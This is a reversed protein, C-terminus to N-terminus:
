DFIASQEISVTKINNNNTSTSNTSHSQHADNARSVPSIPQTLVSDESSKDKRLNDASFIATPRTISYDTMQENSSFGYGEIIRDKSVIRIFATDSYIRKTRQDWFLQKTLFSDRAVNVMVVNGDLRWLRDNSFYTASDCNVKASQQFQKDFQELFLGEPFTWRPVKAEDYVYWVDATIRYRTIGSDSIFTEVDRTFMTYSESADAIDEVFNKQEKQCSTISIIAISLAVIVPLTKLSTIHTFRAM